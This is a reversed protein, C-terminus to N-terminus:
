GVYGASSARKWGAPLDMTEDRDDHSELRHGPDIGALAIMAAPDLIELERNGFLLVGEERLTHLMRSVHVNTLGTAEGINTQTLPLWTTEGPKRPLRGHVRVFLELLLHTIRENAGRLSLNVLHDHARAADCATMQWLDHALQPTSLMYRDIVTQPYITVRVDTLCRATHYMSGCGAPLALLTGPLAFDLIQCSGDDLVVSLAVWGEELVYTHECSEGQRYLEGGAAHREDPVPTDEAHSLVNGILM